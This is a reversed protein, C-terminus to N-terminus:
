FLCLFGQLESLMRRLRSVLQHTNKFPVACDKQTRHVAYGADLIAKSKQRVAFGAELIAKKDQISTQGRVVYRTPDKFPKM